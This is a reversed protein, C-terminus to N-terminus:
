ANIPTTYLIDKAVEGPLIRFVPIDIHYEKCAKLIAADIAEKSYRSSFHSLILKEVKIESVMKIVDALTSHLNGHAQRATEQDIFTAEHILIDTQDWRAYDEVPSDGSYGLITRTITESTYDKGRQDILQKIELGSRDRFEPKLKQKTQNVKFSLSKTIEPAAKVHSNRLAQVFINNKIFHKEAAIIPKWLTGKVHPDFKKTFSEIASFSGSDAPYHIIPFGERANLQNLQFLGMLHDRDAHSIFVQKIKRSKQLLNATVGDGADLLLGLEEIFFWTSFLATSYGSITLRLQQM